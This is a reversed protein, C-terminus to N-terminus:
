CSLVVFNANSADSMPGPIVLKKKITYLVNLVTLDSDVTYCIILPDNCIM